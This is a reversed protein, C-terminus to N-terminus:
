RILNAKYIELTISDNPNPTFGFTLSVEYISFKLKEM